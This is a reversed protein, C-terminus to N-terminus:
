CAIAILIRSSLKCGLAACEFTAEPDTGDSPTSAMEAYRGLIESKTDEVIARFADTVPDKLDHDKTKYRSANRLVVGCLAEAEALRYRLLLAWIEMDYHPGKASAVLKLIESPM